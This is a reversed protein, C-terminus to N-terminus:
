LNHQVEGRLVPISIPVKTQQAKLQAINFKGVCYPFQFTLRTQGCVRSNGNFKGVCYPFQFEIMYVLADRDVHQVEGRLVPISIDSYVQSYSWGSTSSGWATRSNFYRGTQLRCICDSTSSGWATRSNFNTKFVPLGRLSIRQVEGRLVPISIYLLVASLALRVPQVEGRLVPISIAIDKQATNTLKVNFKGM